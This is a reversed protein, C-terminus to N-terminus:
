EQMCLIILKSYSLVHQNEFFNLKGADDATEVFLELTLLAEVCKPCDDSGADNAFHSVFRM